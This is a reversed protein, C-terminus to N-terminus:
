TAVEGARNLVFTFTQTEESPMGDQDINSSTVTQRSATYKAGSPVGTATGDFEHIEVFDHTKGGSTRHHETVHMKGDVAVFEDTCRSYYSAILPVTATTTTGGGGASPAGVLASTVVATILFAHKARQREM